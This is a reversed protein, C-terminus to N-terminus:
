VSFCYKGMRIISSQSWGLNVHQTSTFRSWANQDVGHPLAVPDDQILQVEGGSIDQLSEVSQQIVVPLEKHGLCLFDNLSVGSELQKSGLIGRTEVTTSLYMM